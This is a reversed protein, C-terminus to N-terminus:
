VFFSLASPIIRARFSGRGILEGDAQIFPAQDMIDVNLSISKSSKVRRDSGAKGNFLKPLFKIIEPKSIAPVLSIDFKGDDSVPDHTLQMGGGSYRGIGAILMFIRGSFNEKGLGIRAQFNKYTALSIMAGALYAFAGWHKFRHIKEVVYGDFGVGALNNFYITKPDDGKLELVGIDQKVLNNQLIRDIALEYKRPIGYHRAWDNGTGVPILGISCIGKDVKDQLMLANVTEHLTGDGGVAIFRRFGKNLADEIISLAHGPFETKSYIFAMSRKKMSAKIGPWIRMAKGGGSSPNVLVFWDSREPAIM